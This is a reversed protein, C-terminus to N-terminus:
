ILINLLVQVQVNVGHLAQTGFMFMLGTISVCFEDNYSLVPEIQSGPEWLKGTYM